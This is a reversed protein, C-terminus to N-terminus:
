SRTEETTQAARQYRGMLHTISVQRMDIHTVSAQVELAEAIRGMSLTLDARVNQNVTIVVGEEEM